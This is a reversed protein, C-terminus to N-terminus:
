LLGTWLVLRLTLNAYIAAAWDDAMIGFGEPLRELQRAPPPKAIDFLRHLLYGAVAIKWSSIDLLPFFVLPMSAIEDLVISGPDKRGLHRAAATCIPISVICVVVIAALQAWTPLQQLGWTLPLGWVAGLTGPAVPFFGVGLGTAVFTALGGWRPRRESIKEAIDKM